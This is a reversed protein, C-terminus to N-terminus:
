NPKIPFLNGHGEAKKGKRCMDPTNSYTEVHPSCTQICVCGHAPACKCTLTRKRPQSERRYQPLNRWSCTEAWKQKWKGLVPIIVLSCACRANVNTREPGLSQKEHPKVMISDGFKFKQDESHVKRLVAFLVM